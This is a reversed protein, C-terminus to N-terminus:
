KAATKKPHYPMVKVDNTQKEGPTSRGNSVLEEYLAKMKAVREPQDAALNKKEGIDDALNYLQPSQTQDGEKDWGGSGPGLILKWSGSRV